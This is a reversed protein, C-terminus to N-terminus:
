RGSLHEGDKAYTVQGLCNATKGANNGGTLTYILFRSLLLNDLELLVRHKCVINGKWNNAVLIATSPGKANSKFDLGSPSLHVVKRAFTGGIPSETVADRKHAISDSTLLESLTNSRASRKSPFALLQM